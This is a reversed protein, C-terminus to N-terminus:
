PTLLRKLLQREPTTYYITEIMSSIFENSSHFLFPQELFIVYAYYFGSKERQCISVSLATDAAKHFPALIWRPLSPSSLPFSALGVERVKSFSM